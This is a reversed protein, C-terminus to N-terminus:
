DLTFAQSMSALVAVVAVPKMTRTQTRMQRFGAERLWNEIQKGKQVADEDTAGANRPMHATLLVGGPKLLDGLRHFVAVPEKWFQAVNVSYIKDFLGLEPSLTEASGHLLKLKGSEILEKNRRTAQSVMLVSRDIGVAEAAKAAAKGVAVGPGFGIELIRDGPEIQLLSLAWDSRELNSRRHGMIYGALYGLAGRPRGFQSSVIRNINM